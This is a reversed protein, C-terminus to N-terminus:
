SGIGISSVENVLSSRFIGSSKIRQKTCIFLLICSSYHRFVIYEVSLLRRCVGCFLYCVESNLFFSCTRM